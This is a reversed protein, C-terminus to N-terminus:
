HDVYTGLSFGFVGLAPSCAELIVPVGIRRRQVESHISLLLCVPTWHHSVSHLASASPGASCLGPAVPAEADQGIRLAPWQLRTAPTAVRAPRDPTTGLRQALRQLHPDQSAAFCPARRQTPHTASGQLSRHQPLYPM